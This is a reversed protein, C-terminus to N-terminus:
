DPMEPMFSLSAATQDLSTNLSVVTGFLVCNHFLRATETNSLQTILIEFSKVGEHFNKVNKRVERSMAKSM